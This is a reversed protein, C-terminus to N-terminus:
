SFANEATRGPTGAPSQGPPLLTFYLEGEFIAFALKEAETPTLALTLLVRGQQQPRAALGRREPSVVRQGVALVEIGQLLYGVRPEKAQGGATSPLGVQAIISVRDGPQVFGAVGPPTEAEVSMAQRDAAIQLLGRAQAPLVFRAALIQEGGLITVASVKKEIERLSAIGGEVRAFLPLDRRVILGRSIATDGRTNAPITDKAVFVPVVQTGAFARREIGRVYSLLLGTAVAALLVAAVLAM